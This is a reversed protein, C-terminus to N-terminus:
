ADYADVLDGMLRRLPDLHREYRKWRALASTYIPKRVQDYSLTMVLRDKKTHYELCEDEWELGCFDIIARANTEPDAVLDEYRVEMSDIGAADRWHKSLRDYDRYHHALDELTAAFTHTSPSLAAMFCSLCTDMPHRRVNIVRANPLMLQLLGVHQWTQLTKDVIRDNDDALKEAEDLYARGLTDLGKRTVTEICDPYPRQTKLREPSTFAVQNIVNIEGVGRARSHANIIQEILTSGSRPMSTVFVPLESDISSKPMGKMNKRSFIEITRDVRKSFGARDYPMAGYANGRVFARFADDYRELKEYVRGLLFFLQRNTSAKAGPAGAYKEAMTAADDHNGAQEEITGLILGFEPADKGADIQEQLLRRAEDQRGSLVLLEAKGKIPTLYDPNLAAAKDYEQMAEDTRERRTLIRALNYHDDPNGPRIAILKRLTAEAEDIMGTSYEILGHLSLADPDNSDARLLEHCPHRASAFDGRRIHHQIDRLLATRENPTM